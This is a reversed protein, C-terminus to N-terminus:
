NPPRPRPHRGRAPRGAHTRTAEAINTVGDRRLLAVTINRCVAMAQLAAGGLPRREAKLIPYHFAM